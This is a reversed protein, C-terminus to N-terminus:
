IFGGIRGYYLYWLYHMVVLLVLVELLVDFYRQCIDLLIQVQCIRPCITLHDDVVVVLM